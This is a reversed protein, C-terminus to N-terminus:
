PPSRPLALPIRTAVPCQCGLTSSNGRPPLVGPTAVLTSTTDCPPPRPRPPSPFGGVVRDVLSLLAPSPSLYIVRPSPIAGGGRGCRTVATSSSLAPAWFFCESLASPALGLFPILNRGLYLMSAVSSGAPSGSVAPGRTLPAPWPAVLPAAYWPRFSVSVSVPFLFPFRASRARPMCSSSSSSRLGRSRCRARLAHPCWPPSLSPYGEGQLAHGRRADM